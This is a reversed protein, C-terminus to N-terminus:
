GTVPAANVSRQFYVSVNAFCLNLRDDGHEFLGLLAHEVPLDSLEEVSDFLAAFCGDRRALGYVILCYEVSEVAGSLYAMLYLELDGLNSLFILPQASARGSKDNPPIPTHIRTARCSQIINSFALLTGISVINIFM